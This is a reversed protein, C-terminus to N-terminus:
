EDKTIPVPVAKWIEENYERITRDSSFKGIRAVNTISKQTWTNQDAYLGDITAHANRYAEFDALAMFPDAYQIRDMLPQFMDPEEPSFFGERILDIVQQLVPDQRCIDWPAYNPALERVQQATMGFIVINDEGVEEMIEINAGDLTGITLAGNLAFKMNSTGSAEYGATSIQESVDAAPFIKEAVSVRYNPLFVIKLRDLTSTDRNIMEAAHCILKIVMKAYYYGPAAKGGFIFTRPALSADPNNKMTLWRYIVHLINLTQRKYEHIRKVQVDFISEPNVITGTLKRITEALRKKNLLKTEQWSKRFAADELFPEISRLQDLDTIWKDGIHQTILRALDPNALLLWRRPTVGNTKNNFRNPFM